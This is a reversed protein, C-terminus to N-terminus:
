IINYLSIELLFFCTSCNRKSVAASRHDAGIPPQHFGVERPFDRVFFPFVSISILSHFLRMDIQQGTTSPRPLDRSWLSSLFQHVRYAPWLCTRLWGVIQSFWRSEDFRECYDRGWPSLSWLCETVLVDRTRQCNTGDLLRRLDKAFMLVRLYAIAAGSSALRRARRIQCNGMDGVYRTISWLLVKM